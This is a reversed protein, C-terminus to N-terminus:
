LGELAADFDGDTHWDTGSIDVPCGATQLRQALAQRKAVSNDLRVAHRGAVDSFPRLTGLEVLLTREPNRGMAMGAEFLVNPRAQSTPDTEYSPDNANRLPERLYAMDDPTMLVVVAQAESFAADLIEGVYPSTKGTAQVAQTWELPRLHLARLFTFLANRAKSNRGHVVFVKSTDKAIATQAPQSSEKEAMERKEKMEEYFLKGRSTIEPVWRYTLTARPTIEDIVNIFNHNNLWELGINVRDESLGSLEVLRKVYFGRWGAAGRNQWENQPAKSMTDLLHCAIEEISSMPKFDSEEPLKTVESKRKIEGNQYRYGDTVLQTELEQAKEKLLSQPATKYFKIISGALLALVIQGYEQYMDERIEYRERFNEVSKGTHLGYIFQVLEDPHYHDCYLELEKLLDPLYNEDFFFRYLEKDKQTYRGSEPSKEKLTFTEYYLDATLGTAKRSILIQRWHPANYIVFLLLFLSLCWLRKTSLISLGYRYTNSHTLRYTFNHHQRLLEMGRM